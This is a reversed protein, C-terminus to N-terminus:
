AGVMFAMGRRRTAPSRARHTQYQRVCGDPDRVKPTRVRHQL